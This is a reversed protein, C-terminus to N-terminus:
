SLKAQNCSLGRGTPLKQFRIRMSVCYHITNDSLEDKHIELSFVILFM